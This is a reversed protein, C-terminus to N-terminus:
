RLRRLWQVAPLPEARDKAAQRPRRSQELVADCIAEPGAEASIVRVIPGELDALGEAKRRTYADRHVLVAPTGRSAAFVAAHYRSGFVVRARAALGLIVDDDPVPDLVRLGEPEALGGALERLASEDSAPPYFDMPVGISRTGARFLADVAARCIPATRVDASLMAVNGPIDLPLQSAPRLWAAPDWDCVVDGRGLARAEAVSAVRDRVGVLDACSLLRRLQIADMACTIPGLSVGCVAVTVGAHWATQVTVAQTLLVERYESALSGAGLCILAHAGDLLGLVSKVDPHEPVPSSGQAADLLATLKETLSWGTAEGFLFRELGPATQVGFRDALAQPDVGLVVPEVDLDAGALAELHVRLISDDGVHRHPAWGGILVVRHPGAPSM